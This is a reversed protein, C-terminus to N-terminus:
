GPVWRSRRRRDPGRRDRGALVRRIRAAARRPPASRDDSLRVTRIRRGGHVYWRAIGRAACARGARCAALGEGARLTRPQRSLLRSLDHAAFGATRAPRHHHTELAARTRLVDRA